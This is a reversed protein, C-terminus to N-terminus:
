KMWRSSEPRSLAQRGTEVGCLMNVFCISVEVDQALSLCSFFFFFGLNDESVISVISMALWAATSSVTGEMERELCARMSMQRFSTARRVMGSAGSDSEGKDGVLEPPGGEVDADEKEREEEDTKERGCSSDRVRRIQFRSPRFSV